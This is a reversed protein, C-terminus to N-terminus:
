LRFWRKQSCDADLAHRVQTDESTNWSVPGGVQRDAGKGQLSSSDPAGFWLGRTGGELETVGSGKAAKTKLM